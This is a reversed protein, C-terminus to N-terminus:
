KRRRSIKQGIEAQKARIATVLQAKDMKSRGVIKYKKAKEYLAAKTEKELKTGRPSGGQMFTSPSQSCGCAM